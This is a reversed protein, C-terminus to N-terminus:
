IQFLVQTINNVKKVLDYEDHSFALTCDYFHHNPNKDKSLSGDGYFYGLLEAFLLGEKNTFNRYDKYNIGRNQLIIKEKKLEKRITERGYPIQKAIKRLSNGKNYLAIIRLTIKKDM